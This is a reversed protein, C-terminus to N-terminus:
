RLLRAVAKEDKGLMVALDHVSIRANHELIALIEERM